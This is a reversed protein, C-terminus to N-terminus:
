SETVLVCDYSKMKCYVGDSTLPDIRMWVSDGKKVDLSITIEGSTWETGNFSEATGHGNLNKYGTLYTGNEDTFPATKFYTKIKQDSILTVVSADFDALEEYEIKLQLQGNDDADIIIPMGDSKCLYDGSKKIKFESSYFNKWPIRYFLPITMDITGANGAKYTGHWMKTKGNDKAHVDWTSERGAAAVFNPNYIYFENISSTTASSLDLYYLDNEYKAPPAVNVDGDVDAGWMGYILNNNDYEFQRQTQWRNDETLGGDIRDPASIGSWLGGPSGCGTRLAFAANWLDVFESSFFQKADSLKPADRLDVEKIVYSSDDGWYLPIQCFVIDWLRNELPTTSPIVSITAYPSYDSLLARTHSLVRLDCDGYGGLDSGDHAWIKIPNHPFVLGNMTFCLESKIGGDNAIVWKGGESKAEVYISPGRTRMYRPDQAGFGARVVKPILIYSILANAYRTYLYNSTWLYSDCGLGRRNDPNLIQWQTKDVYYGDVDRCESFHRNTFWMYPGHIWRINSFSSVLPSQIRKAGLTIGSLYNAIAGDIKNDLSSNYRNIQSQFDNKLSEFEAKTIFAAGDNDGVVAAFSNISMLVILLWALKQKLWNKTSKKM